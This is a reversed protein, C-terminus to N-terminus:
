RLALRAEIFLALEVQRTADGAADPDEVAQILLGADTTLKPAWVALSIVPAKRPRVM